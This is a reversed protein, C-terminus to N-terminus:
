QAQQMTDSIGVSEDIAYNHIMMRIDSIIRPKYPYTNIYFVILDRFVNGNEEIISELFRGVSRDMVVLQIIDRLTIHFGSMYQLAMDLKANLIALKPNKYMKKNYLTNTDKDRKANQLQLADYLANREKLIYNAFFRVITQAFDTVFFEYIYFASSYYDGDDNDKFSLNYSKCVIDIIERYTESRVGLAAAREDAQTFSSLIEKFQTEYGNIYNPVPYLLLARSVSEMASDMIFDSSFQSLVQSLENDRSLRYDRDNMYHSAVAM